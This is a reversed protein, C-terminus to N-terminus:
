KLKDLEEQVEMHWMQYEWYQEETKICRKQSSSERYIAKQRDEIQQM